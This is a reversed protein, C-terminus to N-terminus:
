KVSNFLNIGDLGNKLSTDLIGKSFKYIPNKDSINKMKAVNEIGLDYYKQRDTDPAVGALISYFGVSTMLLKMDMYHQRTLSHELVTNIDEVEKIMLKQENENLGNSIIKRLKLHYPSFANGLDVTNGIYSNDIDKLFQLRKTYSMISFESLGRNIKYPKVVIYTFLVAFVIVIIVAMFNTFGKDENNKKKKNKNGEEISQTIIDKYCFNAVFAAIISIMVWGIVTQFLMLGQIMFSVMGLFLAMYIFGDKTFDLVAKRILGFLIFGYLSILGVFGLIGGTALEDIYVNHARDVWYEVGFGQVIIVPDFYKAYIYQYSDGGWGLMPKEKFGETAIHWFVLRNPGAKEAILNRVSSLGVTSVIIVSAISISLFIGIFIKRIKVSSINRFILYLIFLFVCAIVSYSATQALGIPGFHMGPYQAIFGSLNPNFYTAIVAFIAIIKTTKNKASLLLGLSIFLVFTLYVGVWSSNGITFGSQTKLDLYSSFKMGLDALLCGLSYVIGSISLSTFVSQWDEITKFVASIVVSFVFMCLMFVVGTGQDFSSWFSLSPVVANMCSIVLILIYFIFAIFVGNKPITSNEKKYLKGLLWLTAIILTVGEIFISKAFVAGYFGRTFIIFPLLFVSILTIRKIISNM